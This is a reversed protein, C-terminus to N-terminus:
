AAEDALTQSMEFHRAADESQRLQGLARGALHLAGAKCGFEPQSVDGSRRRFSASAICRWAALKLPQKGDM